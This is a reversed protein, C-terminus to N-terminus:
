SSPSPSIPFTMRMSWSGMPREGRLVGGGEPLAERAPDEGLVLRVAHPVILGVFGIIGALSVVTATILTAM